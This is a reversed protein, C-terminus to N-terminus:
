WENVLPRPRYWWQEFDQTYRAQPLSPDEPFHWTTWQFYAQSFVDVDEDRQTAVARRGLEVIGEPKRPAAEVTEELRRNCPFLMENEQLIMRYVSYVVQGVSLLRLYGEAKCGKLFYGSNLRYNGYFSLMKEEREWLPFVGIKPLIEAVEPDSSFLVRAGVFSNRTPESGHQAAAQIYDKTMYKVDFYGGEYTCHGFVCEATRGEALKKAYAEPTLIVLADLDSDPRENGKAVSGGLVLAIIGETPRFYEKMKEISDLHHQYMSSGAKM